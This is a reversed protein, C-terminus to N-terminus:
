DAAAAAATVCHIVPFGDMWGIKLGRGSGLYLKTTNHALSLDSGNIMPFQSVFNIFQQRLCSDTKNGDSIASNRFHSLECSGENVQM